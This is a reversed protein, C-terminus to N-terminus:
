KGISKKNGKALGREVYHFFITIIISPVAMSKWVEQLVDYKHVEKCARMRAASGLWGVVWQNTMSIKENNAKVCGNM